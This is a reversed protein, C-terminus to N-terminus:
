LHGETTHQYEGWILIVPNLAALRVAGDPLDAFRSAALQVGDVAYGADLLAARSALAHDLAVCTAVVTAPRLAAVAAVVAPGGGGVFVADAPPLGSLAQPAYGGVVRVDVGHHRANNRIRDCSGPDAEVAVTAAGLLGCEVAVSGSGAGVDWILRGTAPRLHALAVARVEAKTIMGARHEYATEPLGWGRGAARGAAMGAGGDAMGGTQQISHRRGPDTVLVLNPEAWNRGIAERATCVTVRADSHGLREGVTFQREWGDLAGALDTVTLDPGTLVAVAPLARAVNVAPRPDRGHASVTVVDDWSQGTAAALASLSSPAPLVLLDRNLTALVRVIGYWGPDGSALVVAPGSHEALAALGARLPGLEVLRAAAPLHAAVLDLHRRGGVVLTAASLAARARARPDAGDLGIVTIPNM